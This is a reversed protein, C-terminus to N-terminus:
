KKAAPGPSGLAFDSVKLNKNKYYDPANNFGFM